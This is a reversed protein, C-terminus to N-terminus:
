LWPPVEGEGPCGAFCFKGSFSGYIFPTQRKRYDRATETEVGMTVRKIFEEVPLGKTGIHELVHKTLPGNRGEGDFAADKSATAYLVM